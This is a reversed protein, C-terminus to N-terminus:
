YKYDIVLKDSPGIITSYVSNLTVINGSITWDTPTYIDNGNYEVEISNINYPTHSLIYVLQGNTPIFTDRADTLFTPPTMTGGFTYDVVISDGNQIISSYNPNLIINNGVINWDKLYYINVGNFEVEIESIDAPTNSLIYTLQGTTATFFDRASIKASAGTTHIPEWDANTTPGTVPAGPKLKYTTFDSKVYVTMGEFRRDSLLNNREVLTNVSRWGSHGDFIM